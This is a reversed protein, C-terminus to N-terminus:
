HELYCFSVTQVQTCDAPIQCSPILHLTESGNWLVSPGDIPSEERTFLLSQLWNFLLILAPRVRILGSKQVQSFSLEGPNDETRSLSCFAQPIWSPRAVKIKQTPSRPLHVSWAKSCLIGRRHYVFEKTFPGVLGFPFM